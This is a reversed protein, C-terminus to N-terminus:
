KMTVTVMIPNHDSIYKGDKRDTIVQYSKLEMDKGNTFVYDIVEPRQLKGMGNVTSTVDTSAVEAHSDLAFSTMAKYGESGIVMNYDATFFTPLDYEDAVKKLLAASNRHCEDTFDFHTNIFLMKKGNMKNKLVVATAIRLYSANWGKGETDPTDSLWFHREEVLEFTDKRWYIPTAELAKEGRYKLACDYETMRSFIDEFVPTVEQFGVVSPRYRTVLARAWRARTVPEVLNANNNCVNFSMVRIKARFEVETYVGYHDSVFNGDVLDTMRKSTVPVVTDPTVFCFDIPRSTSNLNFGHCTTGNDKTTMMNADALMKELERYGPQGPHMNYDATVIASECKLAKIHELILKSSAVQCPDSFGYHTNMFLFEQGSAKERLKVWMCIRYCGWSDWGQSELHPTDSLWFYGQDLCDFLAKKWMIPTSEKNTEKRWHNIIEYEEGYYETLYEMWKPTAEQFGVIDPDYKALVTRLRPAREDISNGGPKDGCLLNYNVIKM